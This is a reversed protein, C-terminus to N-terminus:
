SRVKQAADEAGDRKSMILSTKQREPKMQNWTTTRTWSNQTLSPKSTKLLIGLIQNTTKIQRRIAIANRQKLRQEPQVIVFGSTSAALFHTRLWLLSVPARVFCLAENSARTLTSFVETFPAKSQETEGEM